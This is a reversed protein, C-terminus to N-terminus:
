HRSMQEYRDQIQPPWLSRIYAIVASIEEDSLRGAFGRMPSDAAPSGDKIIQFLTELTHHWAHGSGDMAPALYGGADKEGGMPQSPNEGVGAVGHCVVCNARFLSEGKAVVEANRWDAVRHPPKTPFLLFLVVMTAAAAALIWGWYRQFTFRSQPSKLNAM